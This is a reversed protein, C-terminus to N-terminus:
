LQEPLKAGTNDDFVEQEYSWEDFDFSPEECCVTGISFPYAKGDAKLQERFGRLVAARVRPSLFSSIHMGGDLELRQSFVSAFVSSKSLEAKLESALYSSNTVFSLLKGFHSNSIRRSTECQLLSQM